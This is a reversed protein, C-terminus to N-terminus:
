KKIFTCLLRFTMTERDQKKSMQEFRERESATLYLREGNGSHLKMESM